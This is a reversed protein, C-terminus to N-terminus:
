AGGRRVEKRAMMRALSRARARMWVGEGDGDGEEEDLDAYPDVDLYAGDHGHTAGSPSHESLARNHRRGYTFSARVLETPPAGESKARVSYESVSRPFPYVAVSRPFAFSGVRPTGDENGSREDDGEEVGDECSYVRLYKGPYEFPYPGPRPYVVRERREREGEREAEEEEERFSSIVGVGWHSLRTFINGAARASFMGAAPPTSRRANANENENENENTSM